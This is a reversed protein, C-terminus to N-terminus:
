TVATGCELCHMSPTEWTEEVIYWRLGINFNIIIIIIFSLASLQSSV